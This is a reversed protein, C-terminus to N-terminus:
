LLYRPDYQIGHRRLLLELEEALSKHRHHEEQRDIYQGVTKRMSASVTFVAYGEQWAFSPDVQSSVWVSTAKKLERVFDALCHTTKLGVLAHVHDEVGGVKLPVGDLGRVTGGLYEHFRARWAPRIFPRRLKTACIWHYHLDHYTSGMDPLNGLGYAVPGLRNSGFEPFPHSM